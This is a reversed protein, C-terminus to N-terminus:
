PVIAYQETLVDEIVDPLHIMSLNTRNLRTIFSEAVAPDFFLDQHSSLITGDPAVANVGYVTHITGEESQIVDSRPVYLVSANRNKQM